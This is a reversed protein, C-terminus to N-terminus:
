VTQTMLSPEIWNGAAKESSHRSNFRMWSRESSGRDISLIADGAMWGWGEKQGCQPLAGTSRVRIYFTM